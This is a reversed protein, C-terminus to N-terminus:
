HSYSLSQKCPSPIESECPFIIRFIQSWRDRDSQKASKKGLSQLNKRMEADIGMTMQPRLDCRGGRLHADLCRRNPFELYCRGCYCMPIQHRQYIHNRIVNAWRVASQVIPDPSPLQLHFGSMCFIILGLFDETRVSTTVLIREETIGKPIYRISLVPMYLVTTVIRKRTQTRSVGKGTKRRKTTRMAQPSTEKRQVLDKAMPIPWKRILRHQRMETRRNLPRREIIAAIRQIPVMAPLDRSYCVKGSLQLM